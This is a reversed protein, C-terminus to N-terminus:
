AARKCSEPESHFQWQEAYKRWADKYASHDLGYDLAEIVPVLQAVPFAHMYTASEGLLSKEHGFVQQIHAIPQGSSLATTIATHRFSHFVKRQGTPDPEIGVRPKYEEGFWRSVYHGWGDRGKKLDPFLRTEGRARLHAVYDLFGLAKLKSSVPVKRVGASTKVKQGDSAEDTIAFIWVGDEQIVNRVLLQAIETQRAGTYLAILPIWYRWLRSHKHQEYDSSNLLRRLDEQNFPAYSKSDHEVHVGRLPDTALWGKIDRCWKLFAGIRILKEDITRAAPLQAAPIDMTLLEAISKGPYKKQRNSPLRAVSNRYMLMVSRSIEAVRMEGVIEQFEAFTAAQTRANKESWAPRPGEMKESSFEKWAEGLAPTSAAAAEKNPALGARRYYSVLSDRASHDGDSRGRMVHHIEIQLKAMRLSLEKFLPSDESGEIGLAALVAKALDCGRSNALLRQAFEAESECLFPRIDADLRLTSAVDSAAGFAEEFLRMELAQPLRNRDQTEAWPCEWAELTEVIRGIAFRLARQYEDPTMKHDKRFLRQLSYVHPLVPAIRERATARDRTRLCVRICSRGAILRFPSPIQFRFYFGSPRVELYSIRSRRM